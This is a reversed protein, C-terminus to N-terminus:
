RGDASADIESGGRFAVLKVGDCDVLLWVSRWFRLSLAEAVIRGIVESDTEAHITVDDLENTVAVYYRREM